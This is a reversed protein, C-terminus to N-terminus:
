TPFSHVPQLRMFFWMIGGVVVVYGAVFCAAGKLMGLSFVASASAIVVALTIFAAITNHKPRLLSRGGCRGCRYPARRTM